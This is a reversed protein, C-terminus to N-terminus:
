PNWWCIWWVPQQVCHVTCKERNLKCQANPLTFPSKALQGLCIWRYVLLRPARWAWVELELGRSKTRKLGDLLPLPPVNTTTNTTTTNTNHCNDDAVIKKPDSIGFKNTLLHLSHKPHLDGNSSSRVRSQEANCCIFPPLPCPRRCCSRWSIWSYTPLHWFLQAHGWIIM